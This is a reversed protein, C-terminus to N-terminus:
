FTTWDVLNSQLQCIMLGVWMRAMSLSKLYPIGAEDWDNQSKVHRKQYPIHRKDLLQYARQCFPCTDSCYIINKKM